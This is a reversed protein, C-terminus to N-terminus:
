SNTRESKVEQWLKQKQEYSLEQLDLGNERVRAFYDQWRAEFKHFGSQLIEEPSYGFEIVSSCISLMLDGLEEKLESEDPESSRTLVERVENLEEQVKEFAVCPDPFRFGMKKIDRYIKELKQMGLQKRHVVFPDQSAVPLEKQDGSGLKEENKIRQWHEEVTMGGSDFEPDFVHPHRRVIKDAIKSAVTELTIEGGSEEELMQSHLYIQLLVDGLEEEMGQLNDDEVEALFEYVEELFYKKLTKHTQALDWPCGSDPDRLAQVIQQFRLLQSSM